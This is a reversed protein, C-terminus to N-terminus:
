AMCEKLGVLTCNEIIYTCATLPALLSFIIDNEISPVVSIYEKELQKLAEYFSTQSFYKNNIRHMNLEGSLEMEEFVNHLETEYELHKKLNKNMYKYYHPSCFFDSLFHNIMGIHVPNQEITKSFDEYKNVERLVFWLSNKIKHRKTIYNRLLDPKINGFTFRSKDLDIGYQTTIYDHVKDAILMHTKLHLDVVM